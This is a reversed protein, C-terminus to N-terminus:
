PRADVSIRLVAITEGPGKEDLEAASSFAFGSNKGALAGPDSTASEVLCRTVGDAGAASVEEESNSRRSAM